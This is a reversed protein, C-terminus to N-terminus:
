KIERIKTVMAPPVLDAMASYVPSMAKRFAEVNPKEVVAIGKSKMFALDDAEKEAVTKRQYQTAENV